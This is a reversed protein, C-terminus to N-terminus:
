AAIEPKALWICAGKSEKDIAALLREHEAVEAALARRVLLPQRQRIEGNSGVPRRPAEDAEIMLSNQGRTM